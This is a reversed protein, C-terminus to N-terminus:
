DKKDRELWSPVDGQFIMEGNDVKALTISGGSRQMQSSIFDNLMESIEQKAEDTKYLNEPLGIGMVQVDSFAFDVAQDNQIEGSGKAYINIGASLTNVLPFSRTVDEKDYKSGLMNMLFYNIDLKGSVEVTDDDNIRVQVDKFAYYSPRNYNIFSTVEESTLNATVSHLPGYSYNYDEEEGTKPSTDKQYGLKQLASEYAKKSTKIGLDRPAFFGPLFLWVSGMILGAILLLSIFAVLCGYRKKRVPPQQAYYVQPPPAQYPQPPPAQYPQQQAAQYFPQAPTIPQGCINCFRADSPLDTGCKPCNM